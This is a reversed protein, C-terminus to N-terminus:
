TPAAECQRVSIKPFPQWPGTARFDRSAVRSCSCADVPMPTVDARRM